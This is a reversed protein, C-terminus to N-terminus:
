IQRGLFVSTYWDCFSWQIPPETKTHLYKHHNRHENSTAQYTHVHIGRCDGSSQSAETLMTGRDGPSPPQVLSGVPLLSTRSGPFELYSARAWDPSYECWGDTCNLLINSSTQTQYQHWLQRPYTVSTFLAHFSVVRLVPKWCKNAEASSLIFCHRTKQNKRDACMHERLLAFPMTMQTIKYSCLVYMRKVNCDTILEIYVNSAM